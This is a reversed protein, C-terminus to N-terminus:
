IRTIQAMEQYAPWLRERDDALMMGRQGFDYIHVDPVRASVEWLAQRVADGNLVSFRRACDETFEAAFRRTAQGRHTNIFEEGFFHSPDKIPEDRTVFAMDRLSWLDVGPEHMAYMPVGHHYQLYFRALDRAFEEPRRHYIACCGCAINWDCEYYMAASEIASESSSEEEDLGCTTVLFMEALSCQCFKGVSAEAMREIAARAKPALVHRSYSQEVSRSRCFVRCYGRREVWYIREHRLSALEVEVPNVSGNPYGYALSVVLQQDLADFVKGALQRLEVNRRSWEISISECDPIGQGPKWQRIEVSCEGVARAMLRQTITAYINPLDDHRAVVSLCCEAPM